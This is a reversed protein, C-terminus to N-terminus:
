LLRNDDTLLWKTSLKGINEKITNINVKKPKIISNTIRKTTPQKPQSVQRIPIVSDSEIYKNLQKTQKQSYPIRTIASNNGVSKEIKITPLTAILESKIYPISDEMNGTKIQIGKFYKELKTLQSFDIKFM